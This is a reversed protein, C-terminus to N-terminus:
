ERARAHESAQPLELGTADQLIEKLTMLTPGVDQATMKCALLDDFSLALLEPVGM